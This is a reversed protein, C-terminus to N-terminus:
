NLFWYQIFDSIRPYFFTNFSQSSYYTLLTLFFVTVNVVFFKCGSKWFIIIVSLFIEFVLNCLFILRAQDYRIRLLLPEENLEHVHWMIAYNMATLINLNWNTIQIIHDNFNSILLHALNNSHTLRLYPINIFNLHFYIKFPM